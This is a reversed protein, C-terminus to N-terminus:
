ARSATSADSLLTGRAVLLSLDGTRLLYHASPASAPPVAAAFDQGDVAGGSTSKSATGADSGMAPEPVSEM